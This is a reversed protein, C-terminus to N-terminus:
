KLGRKVQAVAEGVDRDFCYIYSENLVARGTLEADPQRLIRRTMQTLAPSTNTTDLLVLVYAFPCDWGERLADKILIYRVASYCSLLNEDAIEDKEATKLCKQDSECCPLRIGACLNDTRWPGKGDDDDYKCLKDQKESRPLLRRQWFVTEGMDDGNMKRIRRIAFCSTTTAPFISPTTLRRTNRKGSSIPSSTKRAEFRM